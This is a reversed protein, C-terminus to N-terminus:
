LVKAIECLEEAKNKSINLASMVKPVNNAVSELTRLNADWLKRAKAKGIGPLSCLEIMEFGVGYKIRVGLDRFYNSKRKLTMTEVTNLVELLREVDNQLTRQYSSFTPNYEGKLMLWYCYAAKLQGETASKDGGFIKDLKVRKISNVFQQIEEREDNTVITSYNSNVTGLAMAIWPDIEEQRYNFVKTWNKTLDSVDFPSYYFLSSIIGTSTAYYKDDKETLAGCNTLSKIVENLMKDDLKKNQFAALTRSFWNHIDDYSKINGHHIESIIHFCLVKSDMMQSIIPEPTQLKTIYKQFKKNPLLIYADGEPDFQPRGSRGASQKIENTDVETLGRHVGLIVVRRAPCNIGSSLTSTAVIAKLKPDEKFRKEVNKRKTKELDANHYECEIGYQQLADCLLRGTKKTHVFFLFKDQPHQQIIRVALNVKNREQTDYHFHEMYKEYHINLKCPRYSSELLVTERNTLKEIWQGIEDVNPMTASLGIIRCNPNLAAFKMLGCEAHDGRNPASINHIEDCVLTGINKLWPNESRSKSSLMETTMVILDAQELEQKRNNALKYDGTLISINLDYFHHSPDQWDDIKEQSLAKLPALYLGKGGKKRIEYSLYLEAIATKGSSTNSAILANHPKDYFEFIRSQVPNFFQFAFKAYPFESTNILNETHTIKIM